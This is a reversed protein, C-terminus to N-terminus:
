INLAARRVPMRLRHTAISEIGPMAAVGGTLVVGAPLLGDYGSRRIEDGIMGFLQDLRAAMVENLEGRSILRTNGEFTQAELMEEGPQAYSPRDEEDLGHGNRSHESSGNLSGGAHVAVQSGVPHAKGNVPQERQPKSYLNAGPVVAQGYQLKLAEAAEYPISFVIVLDNTMQWGGVPLIKTHWVSGEIYIALDTTGHGIDVLM